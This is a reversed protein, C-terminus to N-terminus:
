QAEARHRVGASHFRQAACDDVKVFEANPPVPMGVRILGKGLLMSYAMERAERTSVDALPSNAGDNLRFIPDNGPTRDFRERVGTPTISWGEQAQHCTVCSRGNSGLERFFLNRRDIFGNTSITVVVGSDNRASHLQPQVARHRDNNDAGALGPLSCAVLLMTAGRASIRQKTM